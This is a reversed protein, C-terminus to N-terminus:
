GMSPLVKPILLGLTSSLRLNCDLLVEPKFGFHYSINRLMFHAFEELSARKRTVKILSFKSLTAWVDGM